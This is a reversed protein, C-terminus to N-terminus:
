QQHAAATQTPQHVPQSQLQQLTQGRTSSRWLHLTTPMQMGPHSALLVKLLLAALIVFPM